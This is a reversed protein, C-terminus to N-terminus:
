HLQERITHIFDQLGPHGDYAYEVLEIFADVDQRQMTLTLSHEGGNHPFGFSEEGLILAKDIFGSYYMRGLLKGANTHQPQSAKIRLTTSM